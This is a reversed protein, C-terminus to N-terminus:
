TARRTSTLRKRLGILLAGTGILIISGPGPVM